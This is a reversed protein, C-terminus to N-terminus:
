TGAKIVQSISAWLGQAKMSYYKVDQDQDKSLGVLLQRLKDELEHNGKSYPLIHQISKAVNM